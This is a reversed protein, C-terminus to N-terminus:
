TWRARRSRRRRRGRRRRRPRTGRQATCQGHHCDRSRHDARDSRRCRGRSCRRDRARNMGQGVVAVGAGRVVAVARTGAGMRRASLAERAGVVAEAAGGVVAVASPCADMGVAPRSPTGAPPTPTRGPRASCRHSRRMDRSRRAALRRARRSDRMRPTRRRRYTRESEGPPTSTRAPVTPPLVSASRLRVASARSVSAHRQLEGCDVGTVVKPCGSVSPPYASYAQSTEPGVGWARSDTCTGPPSGHRPREHQRPVAVPHRKRARTCGAVPDQGEGHATARSPGVRKASWAFPTAVGSGPRGM